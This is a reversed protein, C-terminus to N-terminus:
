AKALPDWRQGLEYAKLQGVPATGDNEPGRPGTGYSRAITLYLPFDYTAFSSRTSGALVEQLGEKETSWIVFVTLIHADRLYRLRRVVVLFRLDVDLRDFRRLYIREPTM